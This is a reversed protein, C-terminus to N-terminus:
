TLISGENETSAEFERLLRVTRHLVFHAASMDDRVANLNRRRFSKQLRRARRLEGPPLDFINGALNSSATLFGALLHTPLDIGRSALLSSVPTAVGQSFTRRLVGTSPQSAHRRANRREEAAVEYARALLDPLVAGFAVHVNFPEPRRNARKRMEGTVDLFAFELGVSSVPILRIRGPPVAMRRTRWTSRSAVLAAFDPHQMLRERVRDLSYHGALLDWKTIVFHIPGSSNQMFSFVRPMEDLFNSEGQMVQLVKQGDLLALLADAERVTEVFAQPDAGEQLETVYEGAYDIYRLRMATFQGHPSAVKCSFVWEPVEGATTSPPWDPGPDSIQQFVEDLRHEKRVDDLSLHCLLEPHHAKLTKWLASLYTTKGAGSPGLTVVTYTAPEVCGESAELRVWRHSYLFGTSSSLSGSRVDTGEGVQRQDLWAGRVRPATGARTWRSLAGDRQEGRGRPSGIPASWAETLPGCGFDFLTPAGELVDGDAAAPDAVHCQAASPRLSDPFSWRSGGASSLHAQGERPTM